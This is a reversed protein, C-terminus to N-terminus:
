LSDEETNHTVHRTTDLTIAGRPNPTIILEEDQSLNIPILEDGKVRALISSSEILKTYTNYSKELFDKAPLPRLERDLSLTKFIDIALLYYDRQSIMDNEMRKQISFFLEVSGVIGCTLSILSTTISIVGQSAYPQLGISIISNFGNLIILPIRYWVLRSKLLFYRQKHLKSLIVCNARINQLVQEISDGWDNTAM